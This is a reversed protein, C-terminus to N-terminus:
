LKDPDFASRQKIKNVGLRSKRYSMEMGAFMTRVEIGKTAAHFM